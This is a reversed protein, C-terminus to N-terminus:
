PLQKALRNGSVVFHTIPLGDDSRWAQALKQYNRGILVSYTLLHMAECDHVLFCKKRDM